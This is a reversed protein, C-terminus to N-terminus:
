VKLGIILIDDVQERGDKWDELTRDLETNQAEASNNSIRLLLERFNKALFKKGRPGGFQDAYGDSSIYISDGKQLQIINNTFPKTEDVDMGVPFKDASHKILQNNRILYLPNFASAYQLEMTQFNIACLTMDMGDKTNRVAQDRHFTSSVGINMKDMIQAPTSIAEDMLIDKLLNYGVISMFAGPVGHGTCDVCAFYVWDNKKDIWYFDGSVIDKPKYLVFSNPLYTNWVGPPPLIAEQINKAYHISDTVHKFLVELENNKLEIETKQQVVQETRVQVLQDAISYLNANTCSVSIFAAISKLLDVDSDNLQPFFPKLEKLRGSVLIGLLSNHSFIPVAVFYPLGLSEKIFKSFANEESQKNILIFDSKNKMSSIEFTHGPNLAVNSGFQSEIHFTASDKAPMLVASVDMRLSVNLKKLTTEFIEAVSMQADVSDQLENLLSLGNNKKRLESKITSISADAAVAVGGLKDIRNQYYNIVEEYKQFDSTNLKRTLLGTLLVASQKGEQNFENESIDFLEMLEKVPVLGKIYALGMFLRQSLESLDDGDIAKGESISIEKLDNLLLYFEAPEVGTYKKLQKEEIFGAINM